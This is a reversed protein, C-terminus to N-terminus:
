FCPCPCIMTPLHQAPAPSLYWAPEPSLFARLLPIRTLLGRPCFPQRVILWSPWSQRFHLLCAHQSVLGRGHVVLLRPGLRSDPPKSLDSDRYCMGSCRARIKETTEFMHCCFPAPAEEDQDRRVGIFRSEDSSTALFSLEDAERGSPCSVVTMNCTM